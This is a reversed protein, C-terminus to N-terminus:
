ARSCPKILVPLQGGAEIEGRVHPRQVVATRSIIQEGPVALDMQFACVLIFLLAKMELLAFRYGICGHSGGFFTMMHGWVGPISSVAEPLPELWREPRFEMADEGWLKKSMNVGSIALLFHQGKKIRIEHHVVGSRDTFPINLPLVDDKVAVRATEPAPSHVRLTERVVADLYPLSNLDEATPNETPVSLLEERLKNQV